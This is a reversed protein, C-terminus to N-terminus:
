RGFPRGPRPPLCHAHCRPCTRGISALVGNRLPGTASAREDVARRRAARARLLRARRCREDGLDIVCRRGLVNTGGAADPANPQTASDADDGDGFLEASRRGLVEDTLDVLEDSRRCARFSAGDILVATPARHPIGHVFLQPIVAADVVPLGSHATIVTHLAGSASFPTM